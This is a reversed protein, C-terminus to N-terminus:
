FPQKGDTGTTSRKNIAAVQAETLDESPTASRGEQTPASFVVGKASLEKNVAEVEATIETKITAFQEDTLNDINTREYAKRMPEPLKELIPKLQSRREQLTNTARITNLEERLSKNSDILAQAWQPIDEQTPPTTPPQPADTPKGDKLHHKNEYNRVATQSAETARRDGESALLSAFTVGAVATAVDDETVITKDKLLKQAVREYVENTLGEFKAALATIIADKM